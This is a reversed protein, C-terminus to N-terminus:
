GEAAAKPPRFLSRIDPPPRRYQGQGAPTHWGAMAGEPCHNFCAWCGTCGRGVAPVAEDHEQSICDAPCIKVCTGCHSCRSADIEISTGVEMQERTIMRGMLAFAMLGPLLEKHSAGRLDGAEARRVMESLFEELKPLDDPGSIGLDPWLLALAAVSKPYRHATLAALPEMVHLGGVLGRHVPWNNPFVMWHAGLTIYRKAALADALITFHSGPDGGATGLLFAPRPEPSRALNIVYREMVYTPRFYMTPCAVGLLDVGGLDLPEKEKTVDHIQCDHGQSRLWGAAYRTVLKTNGTTSHLLITIKM